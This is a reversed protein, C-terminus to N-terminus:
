NVFGLYVLITLYRALELEKWVTGMVLVL